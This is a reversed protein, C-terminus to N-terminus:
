VLDMDIIRFCPLTLTVLALVATQNLKEQAIVQAQIQTKRVGSLCVKAVWLDMRYARLPQRALILVWAMTSHAWVLVGPPIQM